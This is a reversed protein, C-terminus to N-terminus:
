DKPTSFTESILEGKNNWFKASIEVGDKYNAERQKQGNDHWFLQLGDMEGNKYNVEQQKQGNTYWFLYLGDRKGDKYNTELMKQGNPWLMFVKGTYPADKFYYIGERVELEELNVGELEPQVKGVSEKEGCGGLLLPLSVIVLFLPLPNM